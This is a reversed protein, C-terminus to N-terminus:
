SQNNLIKSVLRWGLPVGYIGPPLLPGAPTHIVRNVGFEITLGWATLNISLRGFWEVARQVFPLLEKGRDADAVM